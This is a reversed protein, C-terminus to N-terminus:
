SLIIEIEEKAIDSADIHSLIYNEFEKYHDISLDEYDPEVSDILCPKILIRSEVINPNENIINKAQEYLEELTQVTLVSNNKFEARFPVGDVWEEKYFNFAYPNEYADITLTETDVIFIVHDYLSANESFNQGTLNGVNFIKPAVKGGNHLHGNICLDCNNQIEEISFGQQSIMKGLQIGKIDNHMLLIKKFANSKIYDEIPKRNTEQIYPLMIIECENPFGIGMHHPSDIVHFPKTYDSNFLYNDFLEFLSTSNIQLDSSGMEHNGVLFYKDLENWKIEKLASIEESNLDARDFFDGMYVNVDCNLQSTLKEAWNISNICNELRLSYKKGRKRIISSYQCWHVDGIIGIKM